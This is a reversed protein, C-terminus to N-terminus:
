VIAVTEVTEVIKVTREIEVIEVHLPEKLWPEM